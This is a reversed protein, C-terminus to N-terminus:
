ISDSLYDIKGLGLFIRSQVKVRPVTFSIGQLASKAFCWAQTFEVKRPDIGKKSLFSVGQVPSEFTHTALLFLHPVESQSVEISHLTSDGQTLVSM